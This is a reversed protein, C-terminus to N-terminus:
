VVEEHYLAIKRAEPTRRLMQITAAMNISTRIGIAQTRSIVFNLKVNRIPLRSMNVVITTTDTIRDMYNKSFSM